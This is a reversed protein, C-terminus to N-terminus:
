KLNAISPSTGPAAGLLLDGKVDTGTTWVSGASWGVQWGGGAMGTISPSTGNQIGVNLAGKVDKGTTWLGSGGANWAIQWGGGAMGTISPSTGNQVGLNLNGRVDEGTTWLSGGANWAIQWGGGELGAISPSTGNQVGLNLNGRVDEGTTWLSGGANWAIQWGGGELGAISPSTGNQVGLNLNGRVDEGTTWLSGNSGVFAVQWGGGEMATISPSTGPAMGLGLDGRVDRGTTWLNGNSGQFAVQWGGNSLGTISPSTGPAMGLHLDGRIDKGTTWLSGNSGQFAVQWGSGGAIVGSQPSGEGCNDSTYAGPRLTTGASRLPQKTRGLWQEQHLHNGTSNGTTGVIGIPQGRSVTQGSRVRYDALHAYISSWGGGHNILVYNGFGGNYQGKAGLFVTGDASAVVTRGGPNRGGGLLWDLAHGHGAYTSADWREGCPFPLRFDPAGGGLGIRRTFSEPIASPDLDGHPASGKGLRAATLRIRATMTRSGCRAVITRRGPKGGIRMRRTGKGSLRKREAATGRRSGVRVRAQCGKRAPRVKVRFVSGAPGSKPSVSVKPSSKKAGYSDGPSAVSALTVVIACVCGAIMKFRM